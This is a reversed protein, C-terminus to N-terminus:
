AKAQRLIVRRAVAEPCDDPPLAYPDYCPESDVSDHGHSDPLDFLERLADYVDGTKGSGLHYGIVEIRVVQRNPMWRYLIRIRNPLNIKCFESWRYVRGSATPPSTAGSSPDRLRAGSCPRALLQLILDENRRVTAGFDDWRAYPQITPRYVM